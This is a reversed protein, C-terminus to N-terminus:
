ISGCVIRIKPKRDSYCAAPDTALPGRIGRGETAQTRDMSKDYRIIRVPMFDENGNRLDDVPSLVGAPGRNLATSRKM